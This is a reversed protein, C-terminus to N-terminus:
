ASKQSRRFKGTVRVMPFNRSLRRSTALFDRLHKLTGFWRSMDLHNSFNGHCTPLLGTQTPSVPFDAVDAVLCPSTPSTSSLDVPVDRTQRPSTAFAVPFDAYHFKPKVRRRRSDFTSAAFIHAAASHRRRSGMGM